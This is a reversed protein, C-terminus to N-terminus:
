SPSAQEALEALKRNVDALDFPEPESPDEESWYEVPSDGRFAVCLPYDQGPDRVLTKEVTIEHRWETGLDYTYTIKGGAAAADRVRVEDDYGTEELHPYSASYQKKGVHFLHLHDGDWGFLVQIVVHLDALTATVPLRVRRWIPPRFGTLSVKLQAVQDISLPAGSAAFQEVAQALALADPHGTARVRALREDLDAGPMSEWVRSLAEDAGRDELAAAAGEVALWERDVEGLEPGDGWTALMARAHPGVRPRAVAERLVPLMDDDLKAVLGVAVIRRLPTANEAAALIERAARAAGRGALWKRAARYQQEEDGSRVVEAIMDAAPLLPDAPGSLGDALHAVAWRGLVTVVPKDPDGDMAGFGALFEALGALPTATGLDDYGDLAPRVEGSWKDYRDCLEDLVANVPGWTRYTLPAGDPGIVMLLALALLRVSDEDHPRSEAVCVTRLAALWGPLLDAEAPPWHKLAPGGTVQGDVVRLLGAGMAAWWPRRLAPIDAMTRLKPPVDVGLVAGAAPLDAKRLVQGATVPRHGEGIWRALAVAHGVVPCDRALRAADHLDDMSFTADV